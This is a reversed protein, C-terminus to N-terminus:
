KVVLVKITKKYVSTIFQCLYVGDSVPEGLDNKGDWDVSTRTGSLVDKDVLTRVLEGAINYVKVSVRTLQTGTVTSLSYEIRTFSDRSPCFPNPYNQFLINETNDYAGLVFVTFHSVKASITKNTKDITFSRLWVPNGGLIFFMKLKDVSIGTTDEIDNNDIDIYSITVTVDKSFQPNAIETGSEDVLRLDKATNEVLKMNTKDVNIFSVSTTLSVSFNADIAWAPIDLKTKLESFVYEGGVTKNWINNINISGKVIGQVVAEITMMGAVTDAYVFEATGSTMIVTTESRKNNGNFVAFVVSNTSSLVTNNNSDVVRAKIVMTELGCVIRNKDSEVVVKVPSSSVTTLNFVAPVLNMVSYRDKANIRIIGAKATTKIRIQGTGNVTDIYPYGDGTRWIDGTFDGYEAGTLEFVVRFGTLSVLNDNDDLITVTLTSESISDAVPCETNVATIGIHHPAGAISQVTVSGTVLWTEYASVIINGTGTSSKVIVVAKGTTIDTMVTDSGIIVGFSNAVFRISKQQGTILNDYV